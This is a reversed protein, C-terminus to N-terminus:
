DKPEGLEDAPSFLNLPVNLYRIGNERAKEAFACTRAPTRHASMVRVEHEIGLETLMDSAPKMLPMDSNSGMLIAVRSM